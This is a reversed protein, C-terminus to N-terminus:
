SRTGRLADLDAVTLNSTSKWRHPRTTAGPRFQTGFNCGQYKGNINLHVMESQINDIKGTLHTMDLKTAAIDSKMGNINGALHVMESKM